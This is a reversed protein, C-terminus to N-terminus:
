PVIITSPESSESVNANMSDDVAVVKYVYYKESEVARDTYVTNRLLGDGSIVLFPGDISESRLIRFGSLDPERHSEWTLHVGMTSGATKLNFPAEPPFRDANNVEVPESLIGPVKLPNVFCQLRYYYVRDPEVATDEYEVQEPNDITAIVSFSEEKPSDSRSIFYGSLFTAPSDDCCMTPPTWSLLIRHADVDAEIEGPAKPILIFPVEIIYSDPSTVGKRSVAQIKYYYTTDPILDIDLETKEPPFKETLRFKGDQRPLVALGPVGDDTFTIRAGEIQESSIDGAPSDVIAILKYEYEPSIPTPPADQREASAQDSAFLPDPTPTKHDMGSSDSSNDVTEGKEEEKEDRSLKRSVPEGRRRFLLYQASNELLEGKDNFFVPAWKFVITGCELDARFIQITELRDPPPPNLTSKHGCSVLGMILTATILAATLFNKKM